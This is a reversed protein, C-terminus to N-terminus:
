KHEAASSTKLQYKTFGLEVRLPTGGIESDITVTRPLEMGSIEQSDVRARVNIYGTGPIQYNGEYGILVFGNRTPRLRPKVSGQPTKLETIAFDKTMSISVDTNGDKFSLLYHTGLDQLVFHDLKEPILYTFMFPTWTKLFGTVSQEVGMAMSALSAATTSNVRPGVVRHTIRISGASDISMSFQLRHALKLADPIRAPDIGDLLTSWNPVVAARIEILGQRKLSSYAQRAGDLIKREELGSQATATPLSTSVLLILVLAALIERHRGGLKV